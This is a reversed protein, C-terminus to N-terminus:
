SDETEAEGAEGADAVPTLVDIVQAASASDLDRVFGIMSHNLQSGHRVLRSKGLLLLLLLLLLTTHRQRLSHM